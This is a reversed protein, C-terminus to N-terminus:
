FATALVAALAALLILAVNLGTDRVGNRSAHMAAAFFQLIVFGIAAAVALLPVVGILPPLILGVVGAIEIVGILRVQWMPVQEVWEMMPELQEKNRVIKAWGGYMYLVGLLGAVIWYAIKM